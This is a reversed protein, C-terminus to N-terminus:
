GKHLQNKETFYYYYVVKRHRLFKQVSFSFFQNAICFHFALGLAEVKSSIMVQLSYTSKYFGHVDM